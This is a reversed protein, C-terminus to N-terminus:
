AFRDFNYYPKNVAGVAKRVRQSESFYNTDMFPMARRIKLGCNLPWPLKPFLPVIVVYLSTIFGGNGATTTVLGAQQFGVGAFLAFGALLVYGLNSRNFAGRLKAFPLLLLAGLLFRFGNLFFITGHGAAVRMAVFASGWLVTVFLLTLDAKLRM